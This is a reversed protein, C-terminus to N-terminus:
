HLSKLNSASEVGCVDPGTSLRGMNSLSSSILLLSCNAGLLGTDVPSSSGVGPGLPMSVVLPAESLVQVAGPQPESFLVKAM